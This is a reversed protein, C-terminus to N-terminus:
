HRIPVVAVLLTWSVTNTLRVWQSAESYAAKDQDTMKGAEITAGVDAIIEQKLQQREEPTM